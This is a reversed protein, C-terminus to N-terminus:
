SDLGAARRNSTQGLRRSLIEATFAEAVMDAGPPIVQEYKALFPEWAPEPRSAYKCFVPGWAEQLIDDMEAVNATVGGDGRQLLSTPGARGGSVWGFVRGPEVKWKDQMRLHWSHKRDRSVRVQQRHCADRVQQTVASLAPLQPLDMPWQLDPLLAAGTRRASGWLAVLLHPVVGGDPVQRKLQRMIEELQRALRLLRRHRVSLAGPETARTQAAVRKPQVKCRSRGTYNKTPGELHGESRQTLWTEAATVWLKWLCEVDHHELAAEWGAPTSLETALAEEREQTWPTWQGIPFALPRRPAM